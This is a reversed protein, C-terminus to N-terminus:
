GESRKTRKLEIAARRFLHSGRFRARAPDAMTLIDRAWTHQTDFNLGFLLTLDVYSMSDAQGLGYRRAALLGKEVHDRLQRNSMADAERPFFKRVHLIAATIESDLRLAEFQQRRIVLM